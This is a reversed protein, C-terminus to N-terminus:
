MSRCPYSSLTIGGGKETEGKRSLGGGVWRRETHILAIFAVAVDTSWSVCHQWSRRVELDLLCDLVRWSFVAHLCVSLYVFLFM